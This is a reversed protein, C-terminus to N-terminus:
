KIMKIALILLSGIVLFICLWICRRRCLVWPDTKEEVVELDEIAKDVYARSLQLAGHQARMSLPALVEVSHYIHDLQGQNHNILQQIEEWNAKIELQLELVENAEEQTGM